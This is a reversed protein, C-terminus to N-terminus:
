PSNKLPMPRTHGDAQKPSSGAKGFSRGIDLDRALSDFETRESSSLIVQRPAVQRYDQPCAFLEAAVQVPACSRTIFYYNVKGNTYLNEYQAPVGSMHPTGDLRELIRRAPEPLKLDIVTMTTKTKYQEDNIVNGDVLIDRPKRQKNYSREYRLAPMRCYKGKIAPRKSWDDDWSNAAVMVLLNSSCWTELPMVAYTKERPRVIIVQWQPPRSVIFYGRGTNTARLGNEGVVITLEGIESCSQKL